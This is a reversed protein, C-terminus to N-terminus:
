YVGCHCRLLAVYASAMEWSRMGDWKWCTWVANFELVAQHIIGNIQPSSLKSSIDVCFIFVKSLEQLAPPRFNLNGRSLVNLFRGSKLLLCRLTSWIRPKQMKCPVSIVHKWVHHVPGYVSIHFKELIRYLLLYEKLQNKVSNNLFISDPSKSYDPSQQTSM